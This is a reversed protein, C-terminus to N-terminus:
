ETRGDATFEVRQRALSWEVPRGAAAEIMAAALNTTLLQRLGVYSTTLRPNIEVVVDASGDEAAGLVLDIGVYGQTAPMCTLVARALRQARQAHGAEIPASGGLYRFTGDESLRQLCPPLMQPGGPGCLAAISAPIGPCWTELRASSGLLAADYPCAPGDLRQVGISGAGDAPKLVAPYRFGTPLVEGPQFPVGAPVPVGHRSLRDATRNKDAAIAVFESDPCLLCAGAAEAWRTRQLLARNQEPAIIVTAECQRALEAFVDREQAASHIAIFSGAAVPWDPLRADRLLVVETGPIAQFDGALAAVMAAGEGVLCLEPGTATADAYTGGGTFYEYVFVRRVFDVPM